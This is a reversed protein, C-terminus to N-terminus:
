FNFKLTRLRRLIEVLAVRESIVRASEKLNGDKVNRKIKVANESLKQITRRAEKYEMM